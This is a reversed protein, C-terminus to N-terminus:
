DEDSKDGDKLYGIQKYMQNGLVAVGTVLVAQAITHSTFGGLILPTMLLSIGLLVFPILENRIFSSQKIFSGLVLLVPIMIMGDKAIFELINEM